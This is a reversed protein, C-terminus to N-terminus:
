QNESVPSATVPCARESAYPKLKPWPDPAQVADRDYIFVDDIPFGVPALHQFGSEHACFQDETHVFVLAESDEWAIRVLPEGIFDKCVVTQGRM